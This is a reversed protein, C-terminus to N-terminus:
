LRKLMRASDDDRDIETYGVREYLRMAPNTLNVSLGLQDVGAARYADELADLLRTGIGAGIRHPEVAIAIEPTQEDVYGHGHDGDTFLRGFATGIM